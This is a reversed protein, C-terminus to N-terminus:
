TKLVVRVAEDATLLSDATGLSIPAPGHHADIVPM